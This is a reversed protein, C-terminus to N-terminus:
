GLTAVQGLVESVYKFVLRPYPAAQGIESETAANVDAQWGIKLTTLRVRPELKLVSEYNVAM